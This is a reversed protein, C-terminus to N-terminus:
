DHLNCALKNCKNIKMRESLYPLDSHLDHFDKPYDITVELIYGKESNEDYNEIFEEDFKSENKGMYLHRCATKSVNGM